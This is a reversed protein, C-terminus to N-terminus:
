WDAGLRDVVIQHIASNPEMTVLFLATEAIQYPDIRGSKLIEAESADVLGAAVAGPCIASARVGFERGEDAIARTLGMIGFKSASYVGTGSWAQVGAVSSINLIFGGGNRKMQRLAARCCFFTGRLNTNMVRDWEQTAVEAIPGGGGVGANNVMIDLRGFEGVTKQILREVQQEDAIDTQVPLAHGGQEQIRRATEQLLEQRRAALTVRAGEQAFRLAIAKGIGSSSGTVIAVKGDFKKM